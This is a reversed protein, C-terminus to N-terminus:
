AILGLLLYSWFELGFNCFYEQFVIILFGEFVLFWDIRIILIWDAFDLATMLGVNLIKILIWRLNLLMIVVSVIEIIEWYNRIDLIINGLVDLPFLEHRRNLYCRWKLISAIRHNVEIWRKRILENLILHEAALMILYILEIKLQNIIHIKFILSPQSLQIELTLTTFEFLFFIRIIIHKSSLHNERFWNTCLHRM